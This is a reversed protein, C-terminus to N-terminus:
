VGKGRQLRRYIVDEDVGLEAAIERQSFGDARALCIGEANGTGLLDRLHSHSAEQVFLGYVDRDGAWPELAQDLFAPGEALGLLPVHASWRWSSAVRVLGARVPNLATYRFVSAHHRESTIEGSYFRGQFLHGVRDHRDNFSRAYAGLVERMGASLDPEPTNLVLHLHNPMFCYTQVSWARKRVVEDLLETLRIWDIDDAAIARREVGRATVHYTTEALLPRLKRPVGM